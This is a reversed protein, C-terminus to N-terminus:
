RGSILSYADRYAEIYDGIRGNAYADKIRAVTVTNTTFYSFILDVQTSGINTDLLQRQLQETMSFVPPVLSFYPSSTKNYTCSLVKADEYLKWTREGEATTFQQEFGISKEYGVPFNFGLFNRSFLAGDGNSYAASQENFWQNMKPYAIGGSGIYKETDIMEPMGFNQASSGEESFMFDFLKLCQRLKEGGTVSSIAWGDNKIVRTNELFHVYGDVVGPIRTLPPLIGEVDTQVRGSGLSVSTTSPIFDFTMFGFKNHGARIDGGFYINRFNDKLSITAFDPAILGETYFAKLLPLINELLNDETYSFQLVGDKDLYFKAEYTDSGFVRQGNFYNALRLLDERYSSQRFFYPVIDAGSVVAGTVLKSLTNPALRIVRWLAALEDIDYQAKSGLYLDSPKQLSPYTDKIYAILTDRATNFNLVGNAAAENQLTIVNVSHRGGKWYGPYATNLTVTEREPTVNGDLLAKVWSQRCMFARAYYGIEAIYPILYIGGDYATIAERINGNRELYSKFNPMYENIYQGLDLFYGQAGYNMLDEAVSNGGYINADKFGTASQTQIIENSKAQTTVDDFEVGLKKEVWQWFPKLDGTKIITGDPMTLPSSHTYKFFRNEAVYNIKIKGSSDPGSFLSATRQADKKGTCSLLVACLMACLLAACLVTKKM